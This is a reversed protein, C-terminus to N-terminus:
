YFFYHYFIYKFDIAVINNQNDIAVICWIVSAPPLTEVEGEENKFSSEWLLGNTEIDFVLEM